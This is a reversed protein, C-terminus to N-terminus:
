APASVARRRAYRGPDLDGIELSPRGDLISEAILRGSLPGLLFGMMAHGTAVWLRDVGPAAGVVPLGDATLPRLGCWTGNVRASDIGHLYLSAGIPLMRQRHQAARLNTGSLEVTGALRLGGGIPTVAVFTEALVCTTSPRQAVEQLEVHYGKGAQLPVDIGASEALEPSWSGAALVVDSAQLEDGAATRVGITRGSKTLLSEVTVGLEIRAGYREAAAALGHMFRGPHAFASDLYHLAGHVDDRFAPERRRLAAGDLEDIRYGFERVTAATERGHVMGAETRFVELWGSRRYECELAEDEILSRFCEGAPWGLRALVTMSRAFHEPRCARRFDLLWRLLAFDARPAIYVPNTPRLLLKLTQGILGPRPLPPHGLALIGANGASAGGDLRSERELVTVASGRRALFYATSLGVIGGGVVLVRDRGM